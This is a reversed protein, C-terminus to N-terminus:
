NTPVEQWSGPTIDLSPPEVGVLGYSADTATGIHITSINTSFALNSVTARELLADGVRAQVRILVDGTDSVTIPYVYCTGSPLQNLAGGSFLPDTILRALAQNACGDALADAEEKQETGLVNFRIHWGSFEEEAVMVLLMLSIVITAMLAVYGGFRQRRKM